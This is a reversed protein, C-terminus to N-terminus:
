EQYGTFARFAQRLIGSPSQGKDGAVKHLLALEGSSLYVRVAGIGSAPPLPESSPKPLAAPRAPRVAATRPPSQVKTQRTPM